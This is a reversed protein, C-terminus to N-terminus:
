AARQYFNLLGGLRPRRSVRGASDVVPSGAILQNDLGQHNRERHYHAVFETVARRFHREGLLIIRDPRGWISHRSTTKSTTSGFVETSRPTDSPPLPGASRESKRTSTSCISWSRHAKVPWWAPTSSLAVAVAATRDDAGPRLWPPRDGHSTGSRRGHRTRSRGQLDVAARAGSRVASLEFLTRASGSM